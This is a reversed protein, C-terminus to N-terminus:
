PRNKMALLANERAKRGMTTITEVAKNLDLSKESVMQQMCVTMVTLAIEAEEQTVPLVQLGTIRGRQNRTGSVIGTVLFRDDGQHIGKIGVVVNKSPQCDAVDRIQDRLVLALGNKLGLTKYGTVFMGESGYFELPTDLHSAKGLSFTQQPDTLYRFTGALTHHIRGIGMIRFVVDTYDNDKEFAANREWLSKVETYSLLVPASKRSFPGSLKAM